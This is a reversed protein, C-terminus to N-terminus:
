NKEVVPIHSPCDSNHKLLQPLFILFLLDIMIIMFVVINCLGHDRRLIELLDVCTDVFLNEDVIDSEGCESKSM